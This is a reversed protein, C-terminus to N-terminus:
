PSTSTGQPSAPAPAPKPRPKRKKAPPPPCAPVPAPPPAPPVARLAAQLDNRQKEQALAVVQLSDGFARRGDELSVIAQELAASQPSPASLRGVAVVRLLVDYLAEINRFAPLGRSVSGPATDADLLLPPLTTELDHRISNINADTEDRVVASIKWKDLRLTGLTQQLNDLAPQVTASPVRPSQVPAPSPSSATQAAFAACSGCVTALLLASSFHRLIIMKM